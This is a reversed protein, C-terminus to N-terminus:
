KSFHGMFYYSAQYVLKGYGLTNPPDAILNAALVKKATSFRHATFWWEFWHNLMWYQVCGQYGAGFAFFM